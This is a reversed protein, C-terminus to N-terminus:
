MHSHSAGWSFSARCLGSYSSQDSRGSLDRSSCLTKVQPESHTAISRSLSHAKMNHFFCQITSARSVPSSIQPWENDKAEKNTVFFPPTYQIIRLKRWFRAFQNKNLEMVGLIAWSVEKERLAMIHSSQSADHYHLTYKWGDLMWKGNRVMGWFRKKVIVLEVTSKTQHCGTRGYVYPYTVLGPWDSSGKWSNSDQAFLFLRCIGPTAWQHCRSRAMGRSAGELLQRHGLLTWAPTRGELQSQSGRIEKPTVVKEMVLCFWNRKRAVIFRYITFFKRSLKKFTFKYCSDKSQIESM